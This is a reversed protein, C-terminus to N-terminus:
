IKIKIVIFRLFSFSHPNYFLDRIFLRVFGFFYRFYVKKFVHIIYTINRRVLIYQNWLLYSWPLICFLSESPFSLLLDSFPYMIKWFWAPLDSALAHFFLAFPHAFPWLFYHTFGFLLFKLINKISETVQFRPPMVAITSSSTPPVIFTGRLWKEMLWGRIM